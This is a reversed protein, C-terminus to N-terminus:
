HDSCYNIYFSRGRYAGQIGRFTDNTLIDICANNIDRGTNKSHPVRESLLRAVYIESWTPM